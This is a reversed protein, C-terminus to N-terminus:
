WKIRNKLDIRKKNELIFGIQYPKYGKSFIREIKKINRKDTIICFGIGCNFTKLM